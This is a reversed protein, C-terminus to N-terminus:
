SCFIRLTYAQLASPGGPLAAILAEARDHGKNYGFAVSAGEAALMRVTAAGIGSSGGTVFAVKNELTM